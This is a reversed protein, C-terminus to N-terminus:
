EKQQYYPMCATIHGGKEAVIVDWNDKGAVADLWWYQMFIPLGNESDCFTGYLDKSHM